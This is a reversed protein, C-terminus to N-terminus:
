TRPRDPNQETQNWWELWEKYGKLDNKGTIRRLSHHCQFAVIQADSQLGEILYSVAAWDGLKGLEHAACARVLPTDDRRLRDLLPGQAGRDALKGLAKVAHLRVKPETDGLASFLPGMVLPGDAPGCVAALALAANARVEANHHKLMLDLLTQRSTEPAAIRGVSLLANKVLDDNASELADILPKVARAHVTPFAPDGGPEDPGPIKSFGLAGAAIVAHEPDTGHELEGLVVDFNYYVQRTLVYELSDRQEVDGVETRASLESWKRLNQDLSMFLTGKDAIKGTEPDNRKLAALSLKEAATLPELPPESSCASLLAAVALAARGPGTRRM